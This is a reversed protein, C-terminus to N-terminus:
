RDRPKSLTTFRYNGLKAAPRPKLDIIPGRPSGSAYECGVNRFV